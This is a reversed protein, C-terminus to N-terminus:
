YPKHDNENTNDPKFQKSEYTIQRSQSHSHIKPLLKAIPIPKVIYLNWSHGRIFKMLSSPKQHKHWM